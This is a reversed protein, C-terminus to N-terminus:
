VEHRGYKGYHYLSDGFNELGCEARSQAYVSEPIFGFRDPLPHEQFVKGYASMRGNSPKQKFVVQRLSEEDCLGIGCSPYPKRLLPARRECEPLGNM